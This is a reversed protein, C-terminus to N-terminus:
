KNKNPREKTKRASQNLPHFLAVALARRIKKERVTNM